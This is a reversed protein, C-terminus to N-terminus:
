LTVNRYIADLSVAIGLPDFAIAGETVVTSLIAAGARRHHVVERRRASVVLYHPISPVRFYGALKETTDISVMRTSIVEVVIAPSPAAFDDNRPPAGVNVLADPEFDTDEGIEVTLGDGFAQADLGAARVADDLARWVAAKVLAHAATQREMRVVRGDVREFRGRPQQEAWARFDARSIRSLADMGRVTGSGGAAQCTAM